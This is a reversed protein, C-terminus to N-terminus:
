GGGIMGIWMIGQRDRLFSAVESGAISYEAGVAYHNTFAADSDLGDQLPLTSLASRTGVWLTHTNVDESIAYILNDSLSEARHTDHTFTTWTTRAPDYADHLLLLGAGWTGVWINKESDQYVVHASNSPNMKPYAFFAGSQKEIRYLGSKWTGIWVDGRDDEFLSKVPAGAFVGGTADKKMLLFSDSAEQYEYLGVDTGFFIRGASTVLIQPVAGTAIKDKGFKRVTGTRKDLVNLGNHTGIWLRHKSDEAVCLVNNSTLLDPRSYNSKYTVISYGDYQFLGNRTCIWIYGDRDQYVSQVDKNPLGDLIPPVEFAPIGTRSGMALCEPIAAFLIGCFLLFALINRM